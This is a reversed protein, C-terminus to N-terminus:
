VLILVVQLHIQYKLKNASCFIYIHIYVYITSLRIHKKRLYLRRITATDYLNVLYIYIYVNAYIYVHTCPNIIISMPIFSLCVQIFIVIRIYIPNFIYTYSYMYFYITTVTRQILIQQHIRYYTKTVPVALPVSFLSTTWCIQCHFEDRPM